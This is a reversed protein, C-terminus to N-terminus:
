VVSKRDLNIILDGNIVSISHILVYSVVVLATLAITSVIGYLILLPKSLEKSKKKKKKNKNPSTINM